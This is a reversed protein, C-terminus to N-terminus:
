YKSIFENTKNSFTSTKSFPALIYYKRFSVRFVFFTKLYFQCTLLQLAFIDLVFCSAEIDLILLWKM